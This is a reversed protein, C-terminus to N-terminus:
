EGLYLQKWKDTMQTAANVSPTQGETYEVTSKRRVEGTVYDGLEGLTVKGQKEKMKKLLYFTFMGHHEAPYPHATEDGQAASFVVMNGRPVGQKARIGVARVDSMSEGSRQSGSFCADLFVLTTRSPSAALQAYLDDLAYGTIIDNAMGDSPLLYSTNKKVDPVGHGAYYFLISAEGNYSKAVKTLWNVERRLMNLTADKVFHINSAPLGVVQELYNRMSTGDNHAYEVKAESYYNENAIIVAFTNPRSFGTQPVDQDVSSVLQVDSMEEKDKGGVAAVDESPMDIITVNEFAQALLENARQLNNMKAAGSGELLLDAKKEDRAVGSGERFCESLKLFSLNEGGEAGKRYWRIAEAYDQSIGKGYRYCQGLNYMASTNGGEASKRYWYIASVLDQEVEIGEELFHALDNMATFNGLEASRKYWRYAEAEDTPVGKGLAYIKAINFPAEPSGAETAKRYCELAMDLNQEVGRGNEYCLGLNNMGAPWGAAASMQYYRFAENLNKDIGQGSEYLLALNCAAIGNGADAGSRYWHVAMAYNQPVGLGQEYLYGLDCMAVAVGKEAAKRYWKAAEPYNVPAHRGNQYCTGLAYMGDPFDQQACASFLAFAKEANVNVGIGKDYCMGLLYQCRPNNHEVGKQYWYVAQAFDQTAVVGNQYCIGLNCMATANGKGAARKYWHIAKEYDQRIGQNNEYCWGLTIMAEDDGAQARNLLDPTFTQGMMWMPQFAFLLFLFKKM